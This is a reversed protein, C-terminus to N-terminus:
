AALAYSVTAQVTDVGGNAAEVVVDGANDVLFTDNGAGGKLTDAGVGGDLIDNGGAGDLVNAADNGTLANAGANGTGSVAAGLLVLNEVEASLAYSVTAQVTDIGGNAAEVVVDAANDVLYTDNRAGGKLTDAGLGGDLIDNGGAGDLVNAAGSGVM